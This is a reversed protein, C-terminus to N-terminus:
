TSCPRIAQTQRANRFWFFAEKGIPVREPEVGAIVPAPIGRGFFRPGIFTRAEDWLDEDIFAQLTKRGGEVFLSQINMGHLVELLHPLPSPTFEIRVWEANHRVEEKMQNFILTRQSGDFLHLTEPLGLLRDLVVRVPQPGSWDRVNLRPNDMLATRPGVMIAQEESRWKHVLMRLRQGTIWTPRAEQGPERIVDIFGDATQAWKLIVYPRKKEHHTFFRKNLNRCAGAMIGTEVEVGQDRLLRIGRGAVQPFPDATGVVVRPIRKELILSTCPPTRGHHCCPELNVYLTADALKDPDRVSAIAHVEAHASGCAKHYGEGIITGRHVLVAGVLPNPATRGLGKAALELCRQM